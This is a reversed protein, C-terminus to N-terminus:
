LNVTQKIQKENLGDGILAINLGKPIFIKHAIVHIDKLSVEQIKKEIDKITKVDKRLIMQGGYFNAFSDSSELELKIGGILYQKAKLLEEKTIGGNKINKLINFIEKLVEEVREKTIGARIGFYGHDTYTDNFSTV